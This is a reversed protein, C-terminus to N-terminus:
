AWLDGQVSFQTLSNSAITQNKAEHHWIVGFRPLLNKGNSGFNLFIPGFVLFMAEILIYLQHRTPHYTKKKLNTKDSSKPPPM